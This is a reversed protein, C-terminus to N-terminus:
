LGESSKFTVRASTDLSKDEAMRAPVWSFQKRYYPVLLFEQRHYCPRLM